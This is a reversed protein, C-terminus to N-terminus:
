GNPDMMGGADSSPPPALLGHLRGNPDMSSGEKTFGDPDMDSGADNSSSPATFGPPRGGNPDMMGGEKTWPSFFPSIWHWLAGCVGAPSSHVAWPRAHAPVTGLVLLLFAVAAFRLIRLM